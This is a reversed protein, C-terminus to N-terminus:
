SNGSTLVLVFAYTKDLEEIADLYPKAADDAAKRKAQNMESILEQKQAFIEKLTEDDAIAQLESTGIESIRLRAKKILDSM